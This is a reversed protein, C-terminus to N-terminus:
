SKKKEEDRMERLWALAKRKSNFVKRPIPHKHFKMFMMIVVHLAVSEVVIASAYVLKIPRESVSYKMAEKNPPVFSKFTSLVGAKKGKGMKEIEDYFQINDQLTIEDVEKVCIHIIRDEVLEVSFSPFDKKM